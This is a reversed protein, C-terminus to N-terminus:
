FILRLIALSIIGVIVTLMLNNKKVAVIVTPVAAAIELPQVELKNNNFFLGSVVLVSLLALPIYNLFKSVKDNLKIKSMFMIPVVRPLITVVAGGLIVLLVYMRM